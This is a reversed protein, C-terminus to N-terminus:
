KIQKNNKKIYSFMHKTSPKISCSESVTVNGHSFGCSIQLHFMEYKTEHKYNNRPLIEGSCRKILYIWNYIVRVLWACPCFNLMYFFYLMVKGAQRSTYTYVGQLAYVRMTWLVAVFRDCITSCQGSHLFWIVRFCLKLPLSTIFRWLSVMSDSYLM